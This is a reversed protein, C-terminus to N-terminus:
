AVVVKRSWNGRCSLRWRGAADDAAALADFYEGPEEDRVEDAAAHLWTAERAPAPRRRGQRPRLGTAHVGNPGRDDRGPRSRWGWRLLRM